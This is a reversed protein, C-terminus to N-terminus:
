AAMKIFLPIVAVANTLGPSMCTIEELLESSHRMFRSRGTIPLRNFRLESSRLDHSNRVAVSVPSSENIGSSDRAVKVADPRAWM